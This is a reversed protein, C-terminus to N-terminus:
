RQAGDDRAVFGGSPAILSQEFVGGLGGQHDDAPLYPQDIGGAPVKEAAVFGGLQLADFEEAQDVGVIPGHFGGAQGIEICVGPLM